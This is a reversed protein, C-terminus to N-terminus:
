PWVYWQDMLGFLKIVGDFLSGSSLLGIWINQNKKKSASKPWSHFATLNRLRPKYLTWKITQVSVETGAKMLDQLLVYPAKKATEELFNLKKKRVM